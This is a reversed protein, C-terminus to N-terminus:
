TSVPGSDASSKGSCCSNRLYGSHSGDKNEDYGSAPAKVVWDHGLAGRGWLM